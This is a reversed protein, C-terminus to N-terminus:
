GARIRGPPGSAHFRRASLRRGATVGILSRLVSPRCRVTLDVGVQECIRHGVVLTGVGASDVSRVRCLDVVLRRPRPPTGVATSIAARLITATGYDIEGSLVLVVTEDGDRRRAISLM